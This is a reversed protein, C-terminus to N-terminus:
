VAWENIGVHANVEMSKLAEQSKKVYAKQLIESGKVLKIGKKQKTCWKLYKKDSQM